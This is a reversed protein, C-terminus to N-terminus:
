RYTVSASAGEFYAQLRRAVEIVLDASAPPASVVTPSHTIDRVDSTWVVYAPPQVSRQETHVWYSRDGLTVVLSEPGTRRVARSSDWRGPRLRDLLQRLFSM